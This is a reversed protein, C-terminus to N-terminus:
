HRSLTRRRGVRDQENAQGLRGPRVTAPSTLRRTPEWIVGEGTGDGRFRILGNILNKNLCKITDCLRRKPDQDMRPPLPDHIRAPWSEEQFAALIAEQNRAAWKFRKVTEGAFKLVRREANWCPRVPRISLTDRSPRSRGDAGRSTRGARPRCGKGSPRDTIHQAIEAGRETLIFCTTETFTLDGTRRFARGDDGEITVERRHEVLGKRVLWRFDNRSLGLSILEQWEVAFEWPDGTTEVAYHLGELLCELAPLMHKSVNRAPVQDRQGDM